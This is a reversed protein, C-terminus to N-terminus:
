YLFLTCSTRFCLKHMQKEEKSIIEKEDIKRAHGLQQTPDLGVQFAGDREMHSLSHLM